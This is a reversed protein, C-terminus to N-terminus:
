SGDGHDEPPRFHEELFREIEELREDLAEGSLFGGDGYRGLAATAEEEDIDPFLDAFRKPGVWISM